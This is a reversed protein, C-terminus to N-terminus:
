VVFLYSVGCNAASLGQLERGRANQVQVESDTPECVDCRILVEADRKSSRPQLLSCVMADKAHRDKKSDDKNPEITNTKLRKAGRQSAGDESGSEGDADEEEKTQEAEQKAKAQKKRKKNSLQEEEGGGSKAKGKAKNPDAAAMMASFQRESWSPQQSKKTVPQNFSRGGNKPAYYANVKARTFADRYEFL